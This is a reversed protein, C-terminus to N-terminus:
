RRKGRARDLWGKVKRGRRHWVAAEPSVSAVAAEVDGGTFRARMRALNVRDSECFRKFFLRRLPWPRNGLVWATALDIVYLRGDESLLVDRHHLDALAVGRGHLDDLIAALRDFVEEDIMEGTRMSLPEADVWETALAFPGLRGLFRPLGEVGASARYAKAERRILWRGLTHRVLLGRGAYTKVASRHEDTEYFFVDAKTGNRGKFSRVPSIEAFCGADFAVGSSDCNDAHPIIDSM